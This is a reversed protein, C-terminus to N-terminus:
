VLALQEASREKSHAVQQNQTALKTLYALKRCVSHVLVTGPRVPSSVVIAEARDIVTHYLEAVKDPEM